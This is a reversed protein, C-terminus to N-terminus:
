RAVGMVAALFWIWFVGGFCLAATAAAWWIPLVAAKQDSELCVSNQYARGTAALTKRVAGVIRMAEAEGLGEVLPVSAEGEMLLVRYSM